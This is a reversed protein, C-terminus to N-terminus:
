KKIEFWTSRLVDGKEDELKLRLKPLPARKCVVGHQNKNGMLQSCVLWRYQVRGCPMPKLCDNEELGHRCTWKQTESDYRGKSEHELCVMSMPCGKRDEMIAEPHSPCVKTAGSTHITKSSHYLSLLHKKSKLSSGRLIGNRVTPQKVFVDALEFLGWNRGSSYELCAKRLSGFSVPLTRAKKPKLSRRSVQEFCFRLPEHEVRKRGEFVLSGGKHSFFVCVSNKGM